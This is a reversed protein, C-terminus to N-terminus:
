RYIFPIGSRYKLNSKNLLDYQYAGISIPTIRFLGARDNAISIAGGDFDYLVVVSLTGKGRAPSTSQLRWDNMKNIFQPDAYVGHAM